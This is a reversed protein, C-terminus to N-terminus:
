NLQIKKPAKIKVIENEKERERCAMAKSSSNVGVSQAMIWKFNGQTTSPVRTCVITEDKLHFVM